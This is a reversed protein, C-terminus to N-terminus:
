DQAPRKRAVGWISRHAVPQHRFHQESVRGQNPKLPNVTDVSSEMLEVTFGANELFVKLRQTSLPNPHVTEAIIDWYTKGRRLLYYGDLVKAYAQTLAAFKKAPLNKFPILPLPFFNNRYFIHDYQTPFTHFIFTGDDNLANYASRMMGSLQDDFLHEFLDFSIVTDVPADLTFNSADGEQWICKCGLEQELHKGTALSKPDLDLGITEYGKLAFELAFTGISCGLDLMRSPAANAHREVLSHALSIHHQWHNTARNHFKELQVRVYKDSYLTEFLTETSM